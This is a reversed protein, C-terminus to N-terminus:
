ISEKDFATKSVISNDYDHPHTSVVHIVEDERTRRYNRNLVKVPDQTDSLTPVVYLTTGQKASLM